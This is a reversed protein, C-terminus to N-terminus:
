NEKIVCLLSGSKILLNAKNEVIINSICRAEGKKIDLNEISYKFGKLTLGKVQDSFIVFSIKTNIMDNFKSDSDIKFIKEKESIFILNSYKALLNINTLEHDISGGLGAICYIVDYKNQIENLLLESDTYDKEIKFKIFKVKKEQYFEKVEDKISDLDGYIEKPILTLEYCFNAGGDACYIDGKHNKIFDLYFNKDGRLEGNLFLYAIKM